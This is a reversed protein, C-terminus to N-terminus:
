LVSLMRGPGDLELRLLNPLDRGLIADDGDICIARATRSLVEEVKLHAAYVPKVEPPGDYPAVEVEDVEMLRLKEVVRRPLCTLDAGTDCLASIGEPPSLGEEGPVSVALRLM